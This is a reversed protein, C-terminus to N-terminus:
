RYALADPSLGMATVTAPYLQGNPQLGRNQQFQAVAQELGLHDV